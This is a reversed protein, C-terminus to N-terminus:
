YERDGSISVYSHTGLSDRSQIFLHFYSGSISDPIEWYGSRNYGFNVYAQGACVEITAVRETFYSRIIDYSTYTYKLNPISDYEQMDFSFYFTDVDQQNITVNINHLNYPFQNGSISTNYVGLIRDYEFDIGDSDSKSCSALLGSFLVVILASTIKM